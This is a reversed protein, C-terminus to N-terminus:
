VPNGGLSKGGNAVRGLRTRSRDIMSKSGTRAGDTLETQSRTGTWHLCHNGGLSRATLALRTPWDLHQNGQRANVARDQCRGKIDRIRRGSDVLYPIQTSLVSIPNRNLSEESCLLCRGNLVGGNQPSRPELRRTPETQSAAVQHARTTSVASQDKGQSDCCWLQVAAYPGYFRGWHSKSPQAPHFALQYLVRSCM